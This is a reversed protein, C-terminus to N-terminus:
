HAKHASPTAPRRLCEIMVMAELLTDFLEPALLEDRLKGKFSEIYGNGWHYGPEIYLTKVGVGASCKEVM